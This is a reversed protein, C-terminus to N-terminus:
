RGSPPGRARRGPRRQRRRTPDSRRSARRRGPLEARRAAEARGQRDGGAIGHAEAAPRRRPRDVRAGNDAQDRGHPLVLVPVDAALARIVTGHGGHTVVAAAERLVASHPAAAVVSVNVPATIESPDVAPGTTVVGRVPLTALADVIRQLCAAHDQFTSSLAVLVLPDDGAPASWPQEVAWTPDDLVAGVHRVNAPFDAEFDFAASTLVLIRRAGRFQDFFAALPPLGLSARLENIGPLGKAWLRGVFSQIARDRGRGLAGSAPQLGLGFPPLGPEPLMYPNPMFVDYPLGASEAAVMAGVAFFSSVVLDPQVDEIAALTDAAYAPAPGVFQKELLRAFLQMPTKCEWDRYPDDAARRTPRNPAETWRRLEAGTAIVEGAMSDEALVVVRHGREVLRRATGLEPPVTGGGDVLTLLYTTMPNTGELIGVVLDVITKETEKRSQGLDRRLLKWTYVDTAAHLANVARRRAAPTAPLRDDFMTALWEQHSQRAGDLLEALTDSREDAAWRFNADGIREYDDVLARVAGAVDGPTAERTSMTEEGILEAVARMVGDKSQFHNLVTQHSVSAAAAIRALTVDELPEELFMAAAARTIRERTAATADARASM